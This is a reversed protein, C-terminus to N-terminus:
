PHGVQATAHTHVFRLAPTPDSASRYYKLVGRQLEVYAPKNLHAVVEDAPKGFCNPQGNHQELVETLEWGRGKPDFVVKTSYVLEGTTRIVRDGDVVEFSVRCEQATSTISLPDSIWRGALQKPVQSEIAFATVACFVTLVTASLTRQLNM